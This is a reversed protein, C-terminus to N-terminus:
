SCEAHRSLVPHDDHFVFNDRVSFTLAREWLLPLPPAPVRRALPDALGRLIRTFIIWGCPVKLKCGEVDMMMM